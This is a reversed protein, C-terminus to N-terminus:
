PLFEKTQSQTDSLPVRLEVLTGSDDSTLTIQARLIAARERMSDLGLGVIEAESQNIGKGNDHIRLMLLGTDLALTVEVKTAEAHKAINNFAEQTIRYIHTDRTLEKPVIPPAVSWEVEINHISQWTQILQELSPVLGLKQLFVPYLQNTLEKVGQQVADCQQQIVACAKDIYEPNDKQRSLMYTQVNIGTILQGLNDHLERALRRREDEQLAALRKRLEVLQKDQKVLSSILNNYHSILTNIEAIDTSSKNLEFNGVQLSDLGSCLESLPKLRSNITFRLTFLTVFLAIIFIIFVNVVTATIEEFEAVSNAQVYVTEGAETVLTIMPHAGAFFQDFFGQLQSPESVLLERTVVRLNRSENLIHVLQQEDIGSEVLAQAMALAARGEQEIDAKAQYLM